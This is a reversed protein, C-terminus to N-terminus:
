WLKGNLAGFGQVTYEIGEEGIFRLFHSGLNTAAVGVFLSNGLRLLADLHDGEVDGLVELRVDPGVPELGLDHRRTPGRGHSIVLMQLVETQLGIGYDGCVPIITGSNSAALPSSWSCIVLAKRRGWPFAPPIPLLPYAQEGAEISGYLLDEIKVAGKLFMAQKLGYSPDVAAEGVFSIADEGFLAVPKDHVVM